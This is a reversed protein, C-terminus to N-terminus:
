TPLGKPGNIIESYFYIHCLVDSICSMTLSYLSQDLNLLYLIYKEVIILFLLLLMTGLCNNKMFKQENFM